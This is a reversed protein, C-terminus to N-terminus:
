WTSVLAVLNVGLSLPIDGLTDDLLPTVFVVMTDGHSGFTDGDMAVLLIVLVILPTMNVVLPTVIVVLPTVIVVLPTVIIVLPTVIVVLHTVIFVLPTM